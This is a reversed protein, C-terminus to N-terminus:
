INANGLDRFLLKREETDITEGETKEDLRTAKYIMYLRNAGM